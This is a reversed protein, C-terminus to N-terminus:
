FFQDREKIATSFGVRLRRWTVIVADIPFIVLYKGFDKLHRWLSIVKIIILPKEKYYSYDRNHGFNGSKLVFEVIKRAKRAWVRKTSYLPMGEIPMGLYNVAVSAFAKWESMVGMAKLREELLKRNITERYTWLLRCLDCVQRLGVGEHFFHKIIHSFIFIVDNDASPLSIKVHNNNWFRFQKELFMRKQVSDVVMDMQPLLLSRLSGHLEIEFDGVIADWHKMNPDEEMVTSAVDAVSIKALEYNADDLLLDVDGALRWLPRKYCQAIGQGKILVSTIGEKKLRDYEKAVFGNMLLNQREIFLAKSILSLSHEKPITIDPINEVGAAVLGVVAQEESIRIVEDYNIGEPQLIQIKKEWLGAQLFSFFVSYKKNM